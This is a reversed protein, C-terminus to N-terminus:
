SLAHNPAAPLMSVCHGAYRVVDPLYMYSAWRRKKAMENCTVVAVVGPIARAKEGDIATVKASSYPSRLVGAYLMGDMYIDAAYRAKGTVKELGDMRPKSQNIMEFQEKKTGLLPM